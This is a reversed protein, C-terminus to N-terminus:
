GRGMEMTVVGSGQTQFITSCVPTPAEQGSHGKGPEGPRPKLGAPHDGRTEKWAREGRAATHQRSAQNEVHLGLLRLDGGQAARDVQSSSGHTSQIDHGPLPPAAAWRGGRAGAMQLNAPHPTELGAPSTAQASHGLVSPEPQRARRLAPLPSKPVSGGPSCAPETKAGTGSGPFSRKM